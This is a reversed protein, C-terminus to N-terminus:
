GATYLVLVVGNEGPNPFFDFSFNFILGSKKKRPKQFTLIERAKGRNVCTSLYSEPFHTGRAARSFFCQFNSIM